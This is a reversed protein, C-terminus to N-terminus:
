LLHGKSSLSCTVQEASGITHITYVGAGPCRPKSSKLYSYISEEDLESPVTGTQIKNEMVWQDIASNIQRLNAMCTNKQSELRSRAYNPITISLMIAIIALAIMLEIITFGDRIKINM